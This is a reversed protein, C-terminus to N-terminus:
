DEQIEWTHGSVELFNLMLDSCDFSVAFKTKESNFSFCKSFNAHERSKIETLSSSIFRYLSNIEDENGILEGPAGWWEDYECKTGRPNFKFIIHM